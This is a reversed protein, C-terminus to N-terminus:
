NNLASELAAKGWEADMDDMVAQYEEGSIIRELAKQGAIHKDIHSANTFSVAKLYAAARPYQAKIQDITVTPITVTLVSDGTDMMRQFATNYRDWESSASAIETLGEIAAIKAKREQAQVRINDFHALIEPKAEKVAAIESASASYKAKLTRKCDVIVEVLGYKDIMQQITM